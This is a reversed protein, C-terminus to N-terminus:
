QKIVIISEDSGDPAIGYFIYTGSPWSSTELVVQKSNSSFRGEHILKGDTSYVFFSQSAWHSSHSIIMQDTFPVPSIQIANDHDSETLDGRGGAVPVVPIPDMVCTDGCNNWFTIQIGEFSNWQQVPIILFDFFTGAVESGKQEVSGTSIPKCAGGASPHRPIGCIEFDYRNVACETEGNFRTGFPVMVSVPLYVSGNMPRPPMPPRYQFTNPRFHMCMLGNMGVCMDVQSRSLRIIVDLECEVGEPTCFIMTGRVIYKGTAPDRELEEPNPIFMQGAFEIVGGFQTFYDYEVEIGDNFQPRFGCYELEQPIQNLLISGELEFHAGAYNSGTLCLNKAIHIPITDEPCCIENLCDGALNIIESGIVLTDTGATDVVFVLDVSATVCSVRGLISEDAVFCFRGNSDVPVREVIEVTDDYTFTYEAYLYDVSCSDLNSQGCLEIQDPNCAEVPDIAFDPCCGLGILPSSVTMSTSDMCGRSDTVKLVVTYEGPETIFFPRETSVLSDSPDFFSWERLHEVTDQSISTEDISVLISDEDCGIPTASFDAIVWPADILIEKSITDVCGNEDEVILSVSYRGTDVFHLSFSDQDFIVSDQFGPTSLRWERTISSDGEYIIQASDGRCAFDPLTFDADLSDLAIVDIWIRGTFPCLSDALVTYFVYQSSDLQIRPNISRFSTGFFERPRWIFDFDAGLLEPNLQISDNACQHLTDPLVVDPFPASLWLSDSSTCINSGELELVLLISDGSFAFFPPETSILEDDNFYKWNRVVTGTDNIESLDELIIPISDSCDGFSATFEATNFLDEVCVDLTLTDSCDFQNSAILTISYVGPSLGSLSLDTSTFLSDSFGPGNIVWQFSDAEESGNILELVENECIFDPAFFASTTEGCEGINYQFDRRTTSILEGDRYEDVCVGVVFQGITNPVGSLEGTVPDIELPVGGLMDNINYPPDIWNIEDYPPNSPPRPAPDAQSGGLLPTCLRYVLSDGEDDIASHDFDIPQNVCIYGPPVNKYKASSNCELLARESINILFTAGSELPAIINLITVNRCCRQYALTYGGASFPLSITDRYTTKHVCVNPPILFCPDDLQNTITDDGMPFVQLQGNFGIDTVLDNNGDFVGIVAPQDFYPEGNFCDRYVVMEIAYENNGLCTYNFDGGVIHTAQLHSM